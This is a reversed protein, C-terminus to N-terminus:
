VRLTGFPIVLHPTGDAPLDIVSLDPLRLRSWAAHAEDAAWGLRAALFTIAARGGTAVVAVGPVVRDPNVDPPCAGRLADVQAGVRWAVADRSEWGPMATVSAETFYRRITEAFADSPLWGGAAGEALAPMVVVACGRAAAVPAITAAMRAEPGAFFGTARDFIGFQALRRAASEGDPTLGRADDRSGPAPTGADAHRVLVVRLVRPLSPAGSM